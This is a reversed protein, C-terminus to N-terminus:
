ITQSSFGNDKESIAIDSLWGAIHYQLPLYKKVLEMVPPVVLQVLVAYEAAYLNVHYQHAFASWDIDHM